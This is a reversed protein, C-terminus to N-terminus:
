DSGDDQGPTFLPLVVLTPQVAALLGASLEGIGHHVAQLLPMPGGPGLFERADLALVPGTATDPPPIPDVSSPVTM